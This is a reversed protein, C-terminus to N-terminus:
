GGMLARDKIEEAVEEEPSFQSANICGKTWMQAKPHVKM